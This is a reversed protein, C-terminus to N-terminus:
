ASKREADENDAERLREAQRLKRWAVALGHVCDHWDPERHDPWRIGVSDLVQRPTMQQGTAWLVHEIALTQAELMLPTANM